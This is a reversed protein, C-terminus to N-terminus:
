GSRTGVRRLHLDFRAGVRAWTHRVFVAGCGCELAPRRRDQTGDYFAIPSQRHPAASCAAPSSESAPQHKRWLSLAAKGMATLKYRHSKSRATEPRMRVLGKQRMRDLMTYISGVNLAGASDKVMQHPYTDPKEDLLRLMIGEKPSPYPIRRPGKKRKAVLTM